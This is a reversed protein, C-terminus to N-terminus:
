MVGAQLKATVVAEDTSRVISMIVKRFYSKATM